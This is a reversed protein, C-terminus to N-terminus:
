VLVGRMGQFIARHANPTKLFMWWDPHEEPTDSYRLGLYMRHRSYLYLLAIVPAKSNVKSAQFTSHYL